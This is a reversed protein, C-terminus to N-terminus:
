SDCWRDACGGGCEARSASPARHPFQVRISLSINPRSNPRPSTVELAGLRVAAQASRRFFADMLPPLRGLWGAHAPHISAADFALAELALGEEVLQGSSEESMGTDQGGQMRLGMASKVVLFYDADQGHWDGSRRLTAMADLVGRVAQGTKADVRVTALLVAGSGAAAGGGAGSGSAEGAAASEREGRQWAGAARGTPPSTLLSVPPAPPPSHHLRAADRSLVAALARCAPGWELRLERGVTRVLRSVSMLVETGVTEEGCGAAATAAATLTELVQTRSHRQNAVSASGWHAMSVLFVAGRLQESWRVLDEQAAPPPTHLTALLRNSAALGPAGAPQLLNRMVQWSERWVEADNVAACLLDVAAQTCGLSPSTYRAVVDLVRVCGATKV